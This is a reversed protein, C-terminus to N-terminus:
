VNATSPSSTTTVGHVRCSSLGHVADLLAEHVVRASQAVVREGRLRDMGRLHINPKTILVGAARAPNSSGTEYYDGPGVLIWDLPSAANVAAQISTYPGTVGNYTGVLLVNPGAAHGAPLALGWTIVGIM